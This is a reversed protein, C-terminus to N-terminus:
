AALSNGSAPEPDPEADKKLLRAPSILLDAVARLLLEKSFPKTLYANARAERALERAAGGGDASVVLIPCDVGENRLTNVLDIGKIDPLDYDTVIIEFGERAREIGANGTEAAIVSLQTEQLHHRLLRRDMASDEVHLLKGCLRQPDVTEIAFRGEFPDLDLLLKLDVCSAFQVGIEHIRGKCHRCRVVKGNVALTGGTRLPLHVICASGVHLYASHILSMGNASLNRCAYKLKTVAGGHQQVDMRISTTRFAWRRFSRKAAAGGGAGDLEDSLRQLEAADMRLTNDNDSPGGQAM